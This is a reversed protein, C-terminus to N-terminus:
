GEGLVKGNMDGFENRSFALKSLNKTFNEYSFLLSCM